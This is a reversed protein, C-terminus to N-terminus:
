SKSKIYDKVVDALEKVLSLWVGPVDSDKEKSDKSFAFRLLALALTTPIAALVVIGLSWLTKTQSVFEAYKNPEKGAIENLNFSHIPWWVLWFLLALLFLTIIVCSGYFAVRRFRHQQLATNLQTQQESATITSTLNDDSIDKAM